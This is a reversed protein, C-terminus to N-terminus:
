IDDDEYIDLRGKIFAVSARNKTAIQELDDIRKFLSKLVLVLIVLLLTNVDSFHLRNLISELDGV